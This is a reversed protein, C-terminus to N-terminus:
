LLTDFTDIMLTALQFFCCLVQGHLDLGPRFSPQYCQVTRHTPQCVKTRGFHRLYDFCVKQHSRFPYIGPIIRGVISQSSNRTAFTSVFSILSYRLIQGDPVPWLGTSWFPNQAKIILNMNYIWDQGEYKHSICKSYLFM